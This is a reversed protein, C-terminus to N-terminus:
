PILYPSQPILYEAATSNPRCAFTYYYYKSIQSLSKKGRYVEWIESISHDGVQLYKLSLEWLIFQFKSCVSYSVHSHIGSDSFVSKNFKPIYTSATSHSPQLSFFIFKSHLSICSSEILSIKIHALLDNFTSVKIVAKYFM